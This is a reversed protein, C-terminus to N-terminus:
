INHINSDILNILIIRNVAKAKLMLLYFCFRYNKLNRKLSASSNLLKFDTKILYTKSFFRKSM